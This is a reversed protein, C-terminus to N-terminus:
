YIALDYYRFRMQIALIKTVNDVTLVYTDDPDQLVEGVYRRDQIGMVTCVKSIMMPKTWENYDDNFDIKNEEFFNYVDYTMINHELVLDRTLSLLDGSKSVAFGM